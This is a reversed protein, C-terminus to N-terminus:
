CRLPIAFICVKRQWQWKKPSIRYTENKDWERVNKADGTFLSGYCHRVPSRYVSTFEIAFGDLKQWLCVVHSVAENLMGFESESESLRVWLAFVFRILLMRIACLKKKIGVLPQKQQQQENTKRNRLAFFFLILISVFTLLAFAYM